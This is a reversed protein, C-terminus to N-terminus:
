RRKSRQPHKRFSNSPVTRYASKLGKSKTAKPM